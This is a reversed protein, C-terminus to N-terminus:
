AGRLWVAGWPPVSGSWRIGAVLDDGAPLDPRVPRDGFNAVVTVQGAGEGRVFAFLSPDALPLVRQPADPHFASQARRVRLLDRYRRHIRAAVSTRDALITRLEEPAFRRRNIARNHGERRVGETDNATGVLSHFYVAPIGRLALALAQTTLFREIHEDSGFDGQALASLYTINLEYPSDSGDAQRRTGVLGGESRVHAVLAAIREPPVLGQLPRVGVGDHSATFNLLTTGPRTRSVSEAWLRLVATDGVLMADLLLPPLSFNYVVHAEDGAGFYSVNEAHPVNTETLLLTGPALRETLRRMLRVVAHTQPLHICDTGLEKWLYAIADLRVIRAGRAVYDLLIDMMEALLTPAAYNLDIQDASFTTWVHKPGRDTEFPTLLPLSRPRVVRTLRQDDPDAEVTWDAFPQEGRLYAAFWESQSSVHNCVLDFALDFHEGLAAVDDWTGLAPDVTRFDVVSFGDDSSYPFFPLLHVISFGDDLGEETLWATLHPLAPGDGRIMDGYAILVVDKEDWMGERTAAVPEHRELVDRLLREAQAARDDPYIEALLDRM